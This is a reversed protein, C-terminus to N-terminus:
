PASKKLIEIIFESLFTLPWSRNPGGSGQHSINGRRSWCHQKQSGTRQSNLCIFVQCCTRARFSGAQFIGMVWISFIFEKTDAVFYLSTQWNCIISLESPEIVVFHQSPRLSAPLSQTLTMCAVITWSVLIWTGNVVLCSRFKMRHNKHMIMVFCWWHQRRPLLILCSM